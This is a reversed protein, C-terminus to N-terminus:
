GNIWNQRPAYKFHTLSRLLASPPQLARLTDPELLCTDLLALTTLHPLEALQPLSAIISGHREKEGCFDVRLTHLTSRVPQLFTFDSWGAAWELTLEQLQPCCAIVATMQASDMKSGQWYLCTLRPLSAAAAPLTGMLVDLVAPYGSALVHLYTLAPLRVLFLLSSLVDSSGHGPGCISVRQLYPAVTPLLAACADNLRMETHLTTWQLPRECPAQLLGLVVSAPWRSFPIRLEELQTLTRLEALQEDPHRKVFEMTLLRLGELRRLPALSVAAFLPQDGRDSIALQTLPAHHSLAGIISQFRSAAADLDRKMYSVSVSVDSLTAPFALDAHNEEDPPLWFQLRRLFPMCRFISQLLAMTLPVSLQIYIDSVHRAM